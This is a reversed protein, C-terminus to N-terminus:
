ILFLNVKLNALGQLDDHKMYYDIQQNIAVLNKHRPEYKELDLQGKILEVIDFIYTVLVSTLGNELELLIHNKDVNIINQLLRILQKAFTALKVDNLLPFMQIIFKLYTLKTASLDKIKTAVDPISTELSHNLIQQNM